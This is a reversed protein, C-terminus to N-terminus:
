RLYGLARLRDVEEESLDSPPRLVEPPAEEVADMWAALETKLAAVREPQLGSVDRLEGPDSDLDFLQISGHEGAFLKYGNSRLTRLDRDFRGKMRPSLAARNQAAYWEAVIASERPKLVSQGHVTHGYPVKLLDLVTPFLDVGQVPTDVRAPELGPGNIILPVGVVEEHLHRSHEVLDHEGFYEGHDSTLIVTTSESLGSRELFSFLRGLDADLHILERDYSNILDKKVGSNLPAEGSMFSWWFDYNHVRWPTEGEDHPVEPHPPRGSPDHVDMYNIFCFFPRGQAAKLWQVANDTIRRDRYYYWDFEQYLWPTLRQALWDSPGVILGKRPVGVWYTDFGQDLQWEPNLFIHNSVIAGTEIGADSALEALTVFRGALPYANGYVRDGRFGHAGHTRPFLGTFISAHSPLTWSSASTVNEFVMATESWQDITPTTKREYGHLSMHDRRVTDLVILIVSPGEGRDTVMTTSIRARSGPYATVACIVTMLAAVGIAVGRQRPSRGPDLPIGRLVLVLAVLPFLLAAPRWFPYGALSLAVGVALLVSAAELSLGSSKRGFVARLWVAAALLLIVASLGKLWPGGSSGRLTVLWAFVPPIAVVLLLVAGAPIRDALARRIVTLLPLAVAGFVMCLTLDYPIMLPSYPEWTVWRALTFTTSSVAGLVAGTAIMGTLHAM